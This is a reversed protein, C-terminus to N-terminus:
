AKRRLTLVAIEPPCNIRIPVGVTGIGRSVYLNSTGIAYPGAVYESAIRAPALVNRGLQGFVIQGGHTHGSVTLGIDYAAAQPFFYPRHCMLLRATDPPLGRTVTALSADARRASGIDDVGLLYLREGNRTIEVREDVLMRIGAANIERAVLDVQRTYYDHNGLVGYVGHPAKLASFAEACPYVEDGQSNVFDGTVLILDCKLGNIREAYEEMMRKTMFVSSHIDTLLAISFGEFAAPLHPMTVPTSTIEYADKRLAGLAASGAAAAGLITVGRRLLNRRREDYPPAQAHAAAPTFKRRIWRFLRYPFLLVDTIVTGLGLFFFSFHWIYFPYLGAFVFWDPAPSLRPVYAILALLPAGFLVGAAQFARFAPRRSGFQKRAVLYWRFELLLILTIAILRFLSM